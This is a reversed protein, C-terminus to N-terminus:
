GRETKELSRVFVEVYDRVNNKTMAGLRRLDAVLDTFAQNRGDAATEENPSLQKSLINPMDVRKLLYMVHGKFLDLEAEVSLEGTAVDVAASGPPSDSPRPLMLEAATALKPTGNLSSITSMANQAKQSPQAALERVAEQLQQLLSAQKQLMEHSEKLWREQEDPLRTAVPTTSAADYTGHVAGLGGSYSRLGAPLHQPLTGRGIVPSPTTNAFPKIRITPRKASQAHSRDGYSAPSTSLPPQPPLQMSAHALQSQAPWSQQNHRQALHRPPTQASDDANSGFSGAGHYGSGPDGLALVIRKGDKSNRYGNHGNRPSRPEPSEDIPRPSSAHPAYPRGVRGNELVVETSENRSTATSPDYKYEGGGDEDDEDISSVRRSRGHGRDLGRARTGARRPPLDEAPSLDLDDDSTSASRTAREARR